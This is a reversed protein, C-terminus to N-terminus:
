GRGLLEGRVAALPRGDALAVLIAATATYSREATFHEEAYARGRAGIEARLDADGALRTIAAALAPADGFPVVLAAGAAELEAEAVTDSVVVPVGHALAEMMAFPSGEFRSPLVFVDAARLHTAVDPSTGVLTFREMLGREAITATLREREPGDGVWVFHIDPALAPEAAAAVVVEHAKQRSLRGVTLVVTGGAARPGATAGGGAEPLAVGNAVVGVDAVPDGLARGLAERTRGSVAFWAQRTRAVGYIRRRLGSIPPADPDVVHLVVATRRSHIAAALLAGPSAEPYPLSVLTARCGAARLFAGAAVVDGAISRLAGLKGAAPATALGVPRVDAGAARLEDRLSSTQPHEPFGVVVRWGDGVLRGALRLVHEEAGGRETSFFLVALSRDPPV